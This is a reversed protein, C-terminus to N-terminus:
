KCLKMNTTRSDPAMGTGFISLCAYSDNRANVWIGTGESPIEVADTACFILLWNLLSPFIWFETKSLCHICQDSQVCAHLRILANMPQLLIQFWESFAPRLFPVKYLHCLMILTQTLTQKVKAAAYVQIVALLQIGTKAHM